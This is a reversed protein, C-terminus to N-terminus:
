KRKRAADVSLEGAGHLTVMLLGGAMVLNKMFNITQMQDAFNTHFILAAAISFGALALAALRAQFGLLLALGGGLETLIVLPLLMGPVGMSEMYGQTGAYGAGLKGIGAIIFIQAMLVRAGLDILKNM